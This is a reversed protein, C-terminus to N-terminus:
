FLFFCNFFFFFFFYFKEVCVSFFPSCTCEVPFPLLQPFPPTGRPETVSPSALLSCLGGARVNSTSPPTPM